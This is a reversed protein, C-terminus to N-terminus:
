ERTQIETGSKKGVLDQSSCSAGATIGSAQRGTDPCPWFAPTLCCSRGSGSVGALPNALFGMLVGKDM